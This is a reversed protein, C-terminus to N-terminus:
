HDPLDEFAAPYVVQGRIAPDYARFLICQAAEPSAWDPIPISIGLPMAAVFGLRGYYNPDGELIVLPEGRADAGAFVGHVLAAGIGRRQLAPLVALPSLMAIRRRAGDHEIVADSIMVHGVVEGDVVAVLALEPIYEPSTRIADVLGAEVPSGFAAAVVAAIAAHDGAVEPRIEIRFVTAGLSM